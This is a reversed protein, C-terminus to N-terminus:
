TITTSATSSYSIWASRYQELDTLTATDAKELEVHVNVNDWDTLYAAGLVTGTSDQSLQVSQESRLQNLVACLLPNKLFAGEIIIDGTV